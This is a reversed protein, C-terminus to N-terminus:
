AEAMYRGVPRHAIRNQEASSRQEAHLSGLRAEAGLRKDRGVISKSPMWAFIIRSAAADYTFSKMDGGVGAGSRENEIESASRRAGRIAIIV